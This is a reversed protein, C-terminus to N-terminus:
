IALLKLVEDTYDIFYDRNQEECEDDVFVSVNMQEATILLRARPDDLGAPDLLGVVEASAIRRTSGDPWNAQEVRGHFGYDYTTSFGRKSTQSVLRHRADYAFGRTSLDPDTVEEM